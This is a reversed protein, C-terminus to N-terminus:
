SAGGVKALADLLTNRFVFDRYEASGQLNNLIPGPLNSMINDIRTQLPVSIQNIENELRSSRFPFSCLGSVAARIEDGLKILALTVLPYDIEEMKTKKVFEFPLDIFTRDTLIQVIFESKERKLTKDFIQTIPVTRQGEKGALIVQSNCLLFPLVVERYPILGCINGGVTIKDRSTHDATAKAARSLLPFLNTECIKTLTVAAGITLKQNNIQMVNCEPIEKIDIVAAFQLKNMRAMSIIETGGGYYLAKKNQLTLDQFTNVAEAISKPRYYAFDMTIM